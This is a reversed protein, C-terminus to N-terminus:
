ATASKKKAFGLIAGLAVSLMAAVLVRYEPPLMFTITHAPIWFLPVTKYLVFSVFGNWDIRSVVAKTTVPKVGEGVLDLYTDTFRHFAMMTPAFTLNMTTSTFFAFLFANGDGPLIGSKQAAAVGGGFIGFILVIVMGLVGWIVARYVVGYPVKYDGTVIRSAMLEGMTALIAFKVFGMLYPQAKTMANFLAHTGPLVLFAVIAAFVALWVFDGKKM